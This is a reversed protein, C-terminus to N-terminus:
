DANQTKTSFAKFSYHSAIGQAGIHFIVNAKQKASKKIGM